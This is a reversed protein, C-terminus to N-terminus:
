RPRNRQHVPLSREFDFDEVVRSGWFPPHPVAVDRSVDSPQGPARESSAEKLSSAPVGPAIEENNEDDIDNEADDEADNEADDEDDSFAHEPPKKGLMKAIKGDDKSALAEM